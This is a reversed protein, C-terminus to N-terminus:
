LLTVLITYLNINGQNNYDFDIKIIYIFNKYFSEIIIDINITAYRYFM